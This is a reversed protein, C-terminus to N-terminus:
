KKYILSIIAGQSFMTETAIGSSTNALQGYSRGVGDYWMAQYGLEVSMAGPFIEWIVSGSLEMGLADETDRSTTQNIVLPTLSSSSTDTFKTPNAYYGGSITGAIALNRTIQLHLDSGIQGGFLLNDVDLERNTEVTLIGVQSSTQVEFHDQLSVFKPGAFLTVGPAVARKLNYELSFLQLENQGINILDAPVGSGFVTTLNGNDQFFNQGDWAVYSTRFEHLFGDSGNKQISAIIGTGTDYASAGGVTLLVDNTTNDQVLVNNNNSEELDLIVISSKLQWTNNNSGYFNQNGVFGQQQAIAQSCICVVMGFVFASLSKM